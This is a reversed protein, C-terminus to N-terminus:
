NMVECHQLAALGNAVEDHGHLAALIFAAHECRPDGGGAVAGVVM